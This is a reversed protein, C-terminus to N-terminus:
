LISRDWWTLFVLSIFYPFQWWIKLSVSLQLNTILFDNFRAPYM